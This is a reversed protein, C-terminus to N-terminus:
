EAEPLSEGTAVEGTEEAAQPSTQAKAEAKAAKEAANAKRTKIREDKRAFWALGEEINVLPRGGESGEKNTHVPFPDNKAPSNIYSYVVQPRFNESVLGRKVLENRFQIPTVFGEPPTPRAPAKAAKPESATAEPGNEAPTDTEAVEAPVDVDEVTEVVDAASRNRSM